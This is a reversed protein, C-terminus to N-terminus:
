GAIGDMNVNSLSTTELKAVAGVQLDIFAQVKSMNMDGPIARKPFTTKMRQTKLLMDKAKVMMRKAKFMMKEADGNSKRKSLTNFIRWQRLWIKKKLWVMKKELSVKKMVLQREKANLACQESSTHKDWRNPPAGPCNLWEEGKWGCWVAQDHRVWIHEIHGGVCVKRYEGSIYWPQELNVDENGSILDEDESSMLHEQCMAEGDTFDRKCRLQMAPHGAIADNSPSCEGDTSLEQVSPSPPIRARCDQVLLQLQNVERSLIPPHHVCQSDTPPQPNSMPPISISLIHRLSFCVHFFSVGCCDDILNM